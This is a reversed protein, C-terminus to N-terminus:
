YRNLRSESQRCLTEYGTRDCFVMPLCCRWRGMYCGRPRFAASAIDSSQSFANHFIRQSHVKREASSGSTSMGEPLSM